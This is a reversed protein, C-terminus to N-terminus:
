PETVTPRLAWMLVPVSMPFGTQTRQQVITLGARTFLSRLHLETRGSVVSHRSDICCFLLLLRVHVSLGLGGDTFDM